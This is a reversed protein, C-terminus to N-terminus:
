VQPAIQIETRQKGAIPDVRLPFLDTFRFLSMLGSITFTLGLRASQVQDFM